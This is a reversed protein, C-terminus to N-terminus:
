CLGKEVKSKNAQEVYGTLLRYSLQKTVRYLKRSTPITNLRKFKKSEVQVLRLLEFSLGYRARQDVKDVM